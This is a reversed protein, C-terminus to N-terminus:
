EWSYDYQINYAIVGSTGAMGMRNVVLAVWEGGNVFVPNELRASNGGPQSIPTSVAQNAVAFQTLDPLLIRKPDGAQLSPSAATSGFALQFETVFPGGALVTQVSASVKVGSIKLRMGAPVEYAQILGDMDLALGATLAEMSRGGLSDCLGVTLADNAPVVAAPRILTGTTITGSVLMGDGDQYSGNARSYTEGLTAVLAEHNLTVGLGDTVWDNNSLGIGM